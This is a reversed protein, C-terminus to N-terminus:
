SEHIYKRANSFEARLSVVVRVVSQVVLDVDFGRFRTSCQWFHPNHFPFGVRPNFPRIDRFPRFESVLWRVDKPSHFEKNHRSASGDPESSPANRQEWRSFRERKTDRKFMAGLGGSRWGAFRGSGGANPGGSGAM